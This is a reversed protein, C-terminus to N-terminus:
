DKKLDNIREKIQVGTEKTEATIIQHVKNVHELRSYILWEKEM